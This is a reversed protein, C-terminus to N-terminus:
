VPIAHDEAFVKRCAPACFAYTMGEYELTLTATALDVTMGCVPDLAKGEPAQTHDVQHGVTMMRTIDTSTTVRGMTGVSHERLGVIQVVVRPEERAGAEGVIDTIKPTLYETFRQTNWSGPVTVRVLHRPEDTGSVWVPPNHVIVHTLTRAAALVAEPASEDAILEHLLREAIERQNPTNEATYLEVTMM